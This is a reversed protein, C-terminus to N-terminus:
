PSFVFLAGSLLPESALDNSTSGITRKQLSLRLRGPLVSKSSLPVTGFHYIGGRFCANRFLHLAAKMSAFCNWQLPFFIALPM